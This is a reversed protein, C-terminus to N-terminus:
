GEKQGIDVPASTNRIAILTANDEGGADLAYQLLEDVHAQLPKSQKLSAEFRENSVKNSVGDSCILIVDGSEWSFEGLDIRVDRETGLARLLVNRQPHFAAEQVTIQGSKLLEQVLSHDETRQTLGEAGFHYLRSDGVHAFVGGQENILAAVVTTGMGNCEPNDAAFQFLEENTVLLANMLLERADEPELDSGMNALELMIREVAMRSAIDGAQHGGMGDAVVALVRGTRDIATGYYDENHQRVCGIHSKVAIEMRM